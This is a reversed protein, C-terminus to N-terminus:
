LNTKDSKKLKHLHFMSYINKFIQSIERLLIYSEHTTAWLLMRYMTMCDAGCLIGNCSYTVNLFSIWEM